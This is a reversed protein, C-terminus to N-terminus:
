NSSLYFVSDLDVPAAVGAITAQGIQVVACGTRDQGGSPDALWVGLGWPFGYPVLGARYDGNVYILNLPTLAIYQRCWAALAPWGLQAAGDELDLAYKRTAVIPGRSMITFSSAVVASVLQPRAFHYEVVELGVAAAGGVDAADYPNTYAPDESVKVAAWSFGQSAVLAWNIPIGDPHQESAVDVGLLARM